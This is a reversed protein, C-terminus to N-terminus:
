RSAAKKPTAEENKQHQTNESLWSELLRVPYAVRAGLRIFPVRGARRLRQLHRVSISLAAAAERESLVLRATNRM